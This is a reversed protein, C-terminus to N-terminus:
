PQGKTLRLVWVPCTAQRVVERVMSGIVASKLAGSEAAMAIWASNGRKSQKLILDVINGKGFEFHVQVEVGAQQAEVVWQEALKRRQSEEESLYNPMSISTGSLIYSGAEFLPEIRQPIVHFLTVGLGRDKAFRILSRFADASGDGFDTAFLIQGRQLHDLCEPGITIVPLPSHLLLTEAFSGMFVRSIGKRAHTGVVIQVAHTKVAYDILTQVLEVLASKESMLIRAPLFEIGPVEKVLSHITKEAADRYHSFDPYQGFVPQAILFEGDAEPSFNLVHVPEVAGKQRNAIQELVTLLQPRSKLTDEFPDIAWIIKQSSESGQSNQPKESKQSKQHLAHKSNSNM